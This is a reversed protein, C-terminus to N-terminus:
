LKSNPWFLKPTIPIDGDFNASCNTCTYNSELKLGPEVEGMYERLYLSDIAPMNSIAKKIQLKDRNGNVEMIQLLFRETLMNSYVVGKKGKKNKGSLQSLYNEDKGTLMRFKVVWGSKPLKQTFEGMSDPTIELNKPEIDSIRVMTKFSEGCEPCDIKVEYDDGYGEKRLYMLVANRDGVVMDDASMSNDIIANDLLVDLVKGNRILDASTLINEDEATLHKIKITTQKNPYFVGKSPLPVNDTIVPFEDDVIQSLYADPVESNGIAQRAANIRDAEPPTAVPTKGGMNIVNDNEQESM